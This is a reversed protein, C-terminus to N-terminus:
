SCVDNALGNRLRAATAEQEAASMLQPEGNFRAGDGSFRPIVHLHFHFLHQDSAPDNNQRLTVGDAAFTHKVVRAIRGAMSLVPGALANPLEYINEVHQRPVVLSHGPSVAFPNVVVTVGSEETVVCGPTEGRLVRCAWCFEHGGWFNSVEHKM